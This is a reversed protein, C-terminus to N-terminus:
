KKKQSSSSKKINKASEVVYDNGDDVNLTEKQQNIKEMTTETEIRKLNEQIEKPTMFKRKLHFKRLKESDLLSVKEREIKMKKQEREIEEVTKIQGDPLFLDGRANMRINSGTIAITEQNDRFLKGMDVLVGRMSRVTTM